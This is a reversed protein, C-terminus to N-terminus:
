KHPSVRQPSVNHTLCKPLGPDVQNYHCTRSVDGCLYCHSLPGHCLGQGPCVDWDCNKKPAKLKAWYNGRVKPLSPTVAVPRHLKLAAKSGLTKRLRDWITFPNIISNWIKSYQADLEQVSARTEPDMITSIPCHWSGDPSTFGYGHVRDWAKIQGPWNNVQQHLVAFYAPGKLLIADTHTPIM